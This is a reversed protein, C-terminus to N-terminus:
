RALRVAESPLTGDHIVAKFAEVAGTVNPFGWINRGVTAGRAGAAVVQSVMGLAAELTPTKPGGAAVLPTPCDAVIQRYAEVDGCYPVKVVDPGCEVACRTAWAIDEPEFSIQPGDRFSRPYVHCIVPLEFRAADRVVDSVARLYKAENAGRVFAVVAIADAGLRIAEEPTTVQEIATDDARVLSSQIILPMSGAYAAWIHSAPGKHMTIADPHGAALAGITAGIHLLGPPMEDGYGIYHDIAM